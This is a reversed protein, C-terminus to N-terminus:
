AVRGPFDCGSTNIIYGLSLVSATPFFRIYLEKLIANFIRPTRACTKGLFIIKQTTFTAFYIRVHCSVTEIKTM